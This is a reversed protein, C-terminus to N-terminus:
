NESYYKHLRLHSPLKPQEEKSNKERQQKKLRKMEEYRAWEAAAMSKAWEEKLNRGMKIVECM